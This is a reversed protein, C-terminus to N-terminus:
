DAMDSGAYHKMAPDPTNGHPRAATGPYEGYSRSATPQSQVPPSFSSSLISHRQLGKEFVDMDIPVGNLIQDVFFENLVVLQPNSSFIGQYAQCLNKFESARKLPDSSHPKAAPEKAPKPEPTQPSDSALSIDLRYEQRIGRIFSRLTVDDDVKVVRGHAFYSAHIPDNIRFIKCFAKQIRDWELSDCMRIEYAQAKYVVRVMRDLDTGSNM